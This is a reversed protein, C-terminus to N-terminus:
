DPNPTLRGPYNEGRVLNLLSKNYHELAGWLHYTLFEGNIWYGQGFSHRIGYYGRNDSIGNHEHEGPSGM